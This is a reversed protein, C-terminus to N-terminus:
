QKSGHLIYEAAKEAKAAAAVIMRNDNKLARLWSQIYAASNKFAKKCDMGISQCLFASGIEAVLEEKSYETDGFFTVKAVGERNLRTEHGTSHTLEHFFTSYYEEVQGYQQLQPVIVKDECPSYFARDIRETRITLHPEQEAYGAIVQEAEVIPQHHQELEEKTYKPAIGECQDIHWVNYSRLIPRVSKSIVFTDEIEIPNGNADTGETIQVKKTQQEIFSYFVVMSAKEGKKIKGGEAQIQEFTLWEGTRQGLLYQNLLSYPKGNAHSICGLFSGGWPKHWPVVGKELEKIIRDTVAQYINTKM